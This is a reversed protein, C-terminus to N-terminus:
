RTENACVSNCPEILFVCENLVKTKGYRLTTVIKVLSKMILLM